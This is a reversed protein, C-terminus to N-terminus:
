KIVKNRGFMNSLEQWIRIGLSVPFTLFWCIMCIAGIAVNTDNTIACVLILTPLGLLINGIWIWGVPIKNM